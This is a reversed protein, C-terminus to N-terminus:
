YIQIHGNIPLCTYITLEKEVFESSGLVQKNLKFYSFNIKVNGTDLQNMLDIIQSQTLSINYFRLSDIYSFSVGDVSWSSKGIYCNIRTTNSMSFPSSLNVTNALTGNIYIRSNIGDFTAM